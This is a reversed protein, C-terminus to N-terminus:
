FSYLNYVPPPPHTAFPCGPPTIPAKVKKLSSELAQMIVSTVRAYMAKGFYSGLAVIWPVVVMYEDLLHVSAFIHRCVIGVREFFDCSCCVNGDFEFRFVRLRFIQPRVGLITNPNLEVQKGGCSVIVSVDEQPLLQEELYSSIQV